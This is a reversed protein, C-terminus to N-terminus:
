VCRRTKELPPLPAPVATWFEHDDPLQLFAFTLHTYSVPHTRKLISDVHAKLQADADARDDDTIVNPSSRDITNGSTSSAMVRGANGQFPVAALLAICVLTLSITSIIKKGANM